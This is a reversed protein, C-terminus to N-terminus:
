DVDQVDCEEEVYDPLSSALLTITKRGDVVAFSVRGEKILYRAYWTRAGNPYLILFKTDDREPVEIDFVTVRRRIGKTTNQGQTKGM